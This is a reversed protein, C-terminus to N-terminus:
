RKTRTRDGIDARASAVLGIIFLVVLIRTTAILLVGFGLGYLGPWNEPPSGFRIWAFAGLVALLYLFTSSPRRHHAM